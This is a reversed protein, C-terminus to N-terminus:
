KKILYHYILKSNFSYYNNEIKNERDVIPSVNPRNNAVDSILSVSNHICQPALKLHMTNLAANNLM